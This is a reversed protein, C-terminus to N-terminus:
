SEGEEVCAWSCGERLLPITTFRQEQGPLRGSAAMTRLPLMWWEMWQVRPVVFSRGCVTCELNGYDNAQQARALPASLTEPGEGAACWNKIDVLDPLHQCAQLALELLSPAKSPQTEWRVVDKVESGDAHFYTPLSRARLIKEAVSAPDELHQSLLLDPPLTELPNPTPIMEFDTRDYLALMEYPLHKIENGAINLRELHPLKGIRPPIKTLKNHRLSLVRLNTLNLIESPFKNISNNSLYLRLAPEIPTYADQSPPIEQITSHKTLSRLRKLSENPVDDLVMSSLDVNEDGAELCHDVIDDIATYLSVKLGAESNTHHSLPQEAKESDLGESVAAENEADHPGRKPTSFPFTLVSAQKESSRSETIFEEEFSTDTEESGMWVGSDFNRTFKRKGGNSISSARGKLKEGWWTGRWKQKRRKSAYDEATPAHDDSSFLAPDSSSTIDYELRPRKRTHHVDFIDQPREDQSIPLPPLDVEM